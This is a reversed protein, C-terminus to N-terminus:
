NNSICFLHHESRLFIMGDVLAPSAHFKEPIENTGLVEFAPGAKLIVMRGNEGLLYIRGDAAVPSALISSIGPLRQDFRAKGTKADFCTLIGGDTVAYLENRYLLLTCVHPVGRTSTWGVADTGTLEGSRGLKIATLVGRGASSAAFAMSHGFVITPIVGKTMGGCQWLVAGTEYDYARIRKTASVAIQKRGGVDLVVPTAYSVQDEDRQVEWLTEGSQKNFAFIAAGTSGERVVIARDGSVIPSDGDSGASVPDKDPFEHRWKLMGKMDYCLLWRMGFYVCVVEGDTAPTANAYNGSLLIATNTPNGFSATQAWIREGTLRDFCLIQFQYRQFRFTAMPGTTNPHAPNGPKIEDGQRIAATIFVRDSWVCPSSDGAGALEANWKIHGTSSWKEPLGTAESVGQANPGRWQPWNNALGPAADAADVFLVFFALSSALLGRPTLASFTIQSAQKAFALAIALQEKM